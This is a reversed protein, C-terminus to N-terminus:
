GPADEEQGYVIIGARTNYAEERRQAGNLFLDGSDLKLSNMLRNMTEAHPELSGDALIHLVSVGHRELERTVLLTRHCDLPEREACMIAVKYTEAGNILRALGSQFLGTKAILNYQVKGDRYCNPDNSRAGLEKGLFVYKIGHASLSQQLAQKKYQPNHRSYPASRVDCLVAIDHRELMAIFTEIAHNSHGISYVTLSM